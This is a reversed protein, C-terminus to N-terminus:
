SVRPMAILAIVGNSFTSAIAVVFAKAWSCWSSDM